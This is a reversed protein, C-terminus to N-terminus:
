LILGRLVENEIRPMTKQYNYRELIFDRYNHGAIRDDHCDIVDCIDGITTWVVEEPYIQKAGPFNHVLPMLGSAIAECCSMNQSEWPSSVIIYSKDELWKPMDNVHGHFFVKKALGMEEIIHNLYLYYRNDQFSGAFHLEASGYYISIQKFAQLLIMPGKKDNIYGVHAFKRNHKKDKPVVFKNMDVGNPILHKNIKVDPIQDFMDQLIKATHQAVCILDTVVEWNVKGVVGTLIEYSHCRVIVKDKKSLSPAHHRTIGVTLENAWELWVIDTKQIEKEIAKPSTKDTVIFFKPEYGSLKLFSDWDKIFTDLGQLCFFTIRKLKM